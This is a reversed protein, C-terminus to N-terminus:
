MSKFGSNVLQESIRLDLLADYLTPVIGPRSFVVSRCSQGRPFFDRQVNFLCRTNCLM